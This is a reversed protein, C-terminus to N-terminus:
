SHGLSRRTGLAEDLQAAVRVWGQGHADRVAPPLQEHRITMRTHDPPEADLTVTVVSDPASPEWATCNWTFRLRRPPELELYEGTITLRFGGDDVEIRLRGGVRADLEVSIAKAPRPCMWESMSRADTWEAYVAQPPAALLRQVVVAAPPPASM